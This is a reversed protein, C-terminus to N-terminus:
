PTVGASALLKRLVGEGSITIPRAMIRGQRNIILTKPIGEIGYHDFVSRSRDILIPLGIRSQNLYRRVVAPDEDTIALLMFGKDKLDRYVNELIPKEARCPGCWTAWFHLLLVNGRLDKLSVSKGDLSPLTFSYRDSLAEELQALAIRSQISPDNRGLDLSYERIM